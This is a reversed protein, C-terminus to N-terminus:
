IVSSLLLGTNHSLVSLLLEFNTIVIFLLTTYANKYYRFVLDQFVTSHLSIKRKKKKKKSFVNQENYVSCFSQTTKVQNLYM